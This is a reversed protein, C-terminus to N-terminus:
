WKRPEGLSFNEVLYGYILPYYNSCKVEKRDQQLLQRQSEEWAKDLIQNRWWSRGFDHHGDDGVDMESLGDVRVLIDKEGGRDTRFNDPNRFAELFRNIAMEVGASFRESELIKKPIRFVPSIDKVGSWLLAAEVRMKKADKGWVGEMREVFDRDTAFYKIDELIKGLTRPIGERVAKIVNGVKDPLIDASLVKDIERMRVKGGGVVVLEKESDKSDKLRALQCQLGAVQEDLVVVDDRRHDYWEREELGKSEGM